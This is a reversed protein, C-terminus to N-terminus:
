PRLAVIRPDDTLRGPGRETAGSPRGPAFGGGSSTTSSGGCGNETRGAGVVYSLELETLTTITDTM